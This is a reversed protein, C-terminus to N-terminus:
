RIEFFVEEQRLTKLMCARLFQPGSRRGVASDSTHSIDYADPLLRCMVIPFLYRCM